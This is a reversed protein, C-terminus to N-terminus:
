KESVYLATAPGHCFALNCCHPLVQSATHLIEGDTIGSAMRAAAGVLVLLLLCRASTNEAMALERSAKEHM